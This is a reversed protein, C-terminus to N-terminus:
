KAFGHLQVLVNKWDSFQCFEIKVLFSNLGKKCASFVALDHCFCFTLEPFYDLFASTKKDFFTCVIACGPSDHTQWGDCILDKYLCGADPANLFLARLFDVIRNFAFKYADDIVTNDGENLATQIPCGILDIKTGIFHGL